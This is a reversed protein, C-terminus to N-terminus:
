NSESKYLIFHTMPGEQRFEMHERTNNMENYQVFVAVMVLKCIELNYITKCKHVFVIKEVLM